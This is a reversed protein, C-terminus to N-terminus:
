ESQVKDESLVLERCPTWSNPMLLVDIGEQFNIRMPGDKTLSTIVALSLGIDNMADAIKMILEVNFSVGNISINREERELEKTAVKGNGHCIPCDFLETYEEGSISEYNWEVRGSGECEDCEADKGSVKVTESRPISKIIEILEKLELRYRCSPEPFGPIVRPSDIKSYKEDCINKAVRVMVFTNTAYVYDGREFPKRLILKKKYNGDYVFRSM